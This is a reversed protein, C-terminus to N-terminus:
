AQLRENYEPLQRLVEDVYNAARRLSGMASSTNNHAYDVGDYNRM